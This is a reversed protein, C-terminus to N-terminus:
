NKIIKFTKIEIANDNVKLFYSAPEFEKLSIETQISEVKKTEL